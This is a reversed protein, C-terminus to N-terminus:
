KREYVRFLVRYEDKSSQAMVVVDPSLVTQIPSIYSIIHNYDDECVEYIYLTETIEKDFKNITCDKMLEDIVIENIRRELKKLEDTEKAILNIVKKLEPLNNM